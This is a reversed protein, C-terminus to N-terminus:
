GQLLEKEGLATLSWGGVIVVKPAKLRGKARLERVHRQAGARKLGLEKAIEAMSPTRNNRSHLRHIARLTEKQMPTLPEAM